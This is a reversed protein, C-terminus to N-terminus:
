THDGVNPETDSSKSKLFLVSLKAVALLLISLKIRDLQFVKDETPARFTSDVYMATCIALVWITEKAHIKISSLSARRALAINAVLVGIMEAIIVVLVVWSLEQNFHLLIASIPLSLVRPLNTLVLNGTQGLAIAATNPAVKL